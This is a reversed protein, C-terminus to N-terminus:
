RLLVPVSRWETFCGVSLDALLSSHYAREPLINKRLFRILRLTWLFIVTWFSSFYNIAFWASFSAAVNTQFKEFITSPSRKIDCRLVAILPTKLFFFFICFIRFIEIPFKRKPFTREMQWLDWDKVPRERDSRRVSAKTFQEAIKKPFQGRSIVISVDFLVYSNGM